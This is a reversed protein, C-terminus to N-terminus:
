CNTLLNHTVVKYCSSWIVANNCSTSMSAVLRNRVCRTLNHVCVNNCTQLCTKLFRNVLKPCTTNANNYCTQFFSNVVWPEFYRGIL